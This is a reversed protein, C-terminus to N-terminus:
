FMKKLESLANSRQEEDLSSLIATVLTPLGFTDMFPRSAETFHELLDKRGLDSIKYTRALVKGSHTVGDVEIDGDDLLKRLVQIVTSQTLDRRAHAIDTATLPEDSHILIELVDLDRQNFLKM